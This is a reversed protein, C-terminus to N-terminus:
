KKKEKFELRKWDQYVEENVYSQYSDIDKRIDSAHIAFRKREKDVVVNKIGLYNAVYQGYEESSYFHTVKINGLINTLYAMQINVSKEDLGYQTPSNFAKLIKVQKFDKQIWRIKTEMSIKLQPTDYIVVYFEDMDQLAKDILYKHGKHYPAYKGITFGIKKM